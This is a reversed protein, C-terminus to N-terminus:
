RPFPAVSCASQSSNLHFLILVAGPVCQERTGYLNVLRKRSVEGSGEETADATEGLTGEM